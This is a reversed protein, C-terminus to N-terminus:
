EGTGAEIQHPGLRLSLDLIGPKQVKHKKLRGGEEVTVVPIDLLKTIAEKQIDAYGAVIGIYKAGEARDMLVTQTKGPSLIYSKYNAVSGDFMSCELLKYLGDETELLQNFGNPDKLQYICIQLTHAEDNYTNLETDAQLTIKLADKEYVWQPPTLATKGACSILLFLSSLILMQLM